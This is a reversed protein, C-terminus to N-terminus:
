LKSRGVYKKNIHKSLEIRDKASMARIKDFMTAYMTCQDALMGGAVDEAWTYMGNSHMDLAKHFRNGTLKVEKRWFPLEKLHELEDILLESLVSVNIIHEVTSNVKTTEM